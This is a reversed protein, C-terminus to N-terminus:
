VPFVTSSLESRSQVGAKEFIGTVHFKITKETVNLVNAIEKNSLGKFLLRCVEKEKDTLSHQEVFRELFTSLHQPESWLSVLRSFLDDADFPKQLFVSAGGNLAEVVLPLDPRSSIVGIPLGAERAAHVLKMGGPLKDKLYVDTVAAHFIVQSDPQILGLSAELDQCWYVEIGKKSLAHSLWEGALPDDELLLIRGALAKEKSQFVRYSHSIMEASGM